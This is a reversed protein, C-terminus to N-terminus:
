HNPRVPPLVAHFDWRVAAPRSPFADFVVPDGAPVSYAAAGKLPAFGASGPTVFIDDAPRPAQSAARQVPVPHRVPLPERELFTQVERVIQDETNRRGVKQVVDRLAFSLLFAVVACGLVWLSGTRAPVSHRVVMTLAGAIAFLLWMSYFVLRSASRLRREASPLDFTM